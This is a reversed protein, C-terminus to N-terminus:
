DVNDHLFSNNDNLKPSGEDDDSLSFRSMTNESSHPVSDLNINRRKYAPEKELDNIGSPTKMKMGLAKIKMIREQSKKLQDEDPIRNTYVPEDKEETEEETSVEDKAEGEFSKPSPDLAEFSMDTEAVQTEEEIVAEVHSVEEVEETENKLEINLETDNTPENGDDEFDDELNYRIIEKPEEKEEQVENAPGWSKPENSVNFEFSVQSEASETTEETKLFPEEITDEVKEEVVEDSVTQTISTPVDDDLSRVVKKPEAGLQFSDVEKSGFGTAIVTVSVKEGLSEDTGNGWILEATYGAENQIYDTIEDIEDM